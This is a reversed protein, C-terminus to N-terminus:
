ILWSVREAFKGIKQFHKFAVQGESFVDILSQYEHEFLQFIQPAPKMKSDVLVVFGANHGDTSKDDILIGHLKM